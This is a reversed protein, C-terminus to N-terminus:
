TSKHKKHKIRHYKVVNGECFILYNRKRTYAHAMKKNGSRAFGGIAHDGVTGARWKANIGSVIGFETMM